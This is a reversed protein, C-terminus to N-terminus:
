LFIGDNLFALLQITQICFQLFVARLDFRLILLKFRKGVGILQRPQAIAATKHAFAGFRKGAGGFFATKHRHRNRINVIKFRNVIGVTVGNAVRTQPRDAPHKARRFCVAHVRVTEAPILQHNDKLVFATGIRKQHHIADDFRNGIQLNRIALLGNRQGDANM